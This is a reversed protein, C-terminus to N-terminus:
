LFKNKSKSLLYKKKKCGTRDSTENNSVGKEKIEIKVCDMWGKKQGRGRWGNGHLSMHRVAIYSQNMSKGYGYWFLRNM